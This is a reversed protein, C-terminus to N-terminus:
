VIEELFVDRLETWSRRVRRKRFVPVETVYTSTVLPSNGLKKRNMTLNMWYIYGGDGTDVPKAKLPRLEYLGKHPTVLQSISSYDRGGWLGKPVFEILSEYLEWIEPDNIGIDSISWFRIRNLIKILDTLKLIPARLYFPTIDLGNVFHGGCSERFPGEWFSKEPNVTFGFWDLVFMFQQSMQTPIILDDGYVSIIGPVGEFYAVTRAISYFLLSQLEFTFGNGMSSIMENRHLDGDVSTFHSRSNFFLTYWTPPVLLEVLDLTISDSASSLDLTALSGDLSGKRALRQNKTQDNLDIGVRRLRRRIASGLGKQLYMNIDPEKCAVRDIDANKAVTFLINGPVINLSLKDIFTNWLVSDGILDIFLELCDKTVDAKGVYKSAPFSARRSRSTSAGGSFSSQLLEDWTPVETTIDVAEDGVTRREKFTLIEAVISRAKEVFREFGIDPLIRFDPDTNQLRDGTAANNRETALWKNIARQRRVEAPATDSSVFKDLFVKKLYDTKPNSPLNLVGEILYSTLHDPVVANECLERKSSRQSRM